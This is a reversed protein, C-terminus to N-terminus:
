EISQLFSRLQPLLSGFPRSVIKRHTAPPPEPNEETPQWDRPPESRGGTSAAARLADMFDLVRDHQEPTGVGERQMHGRLYKLSQIVSVVTDHRVDDNEYEQELVAVRELLRERIGASETEKPAEPEAGCGSFVTMWALALATAAFTRM